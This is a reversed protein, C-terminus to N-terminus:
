ESNPYIWIYIYIYIYIISKGILSWLEFNTLKYFKFFLFRCSHGRQSQAGLLLCLTVFNSKMTGLSDWKKHMSM